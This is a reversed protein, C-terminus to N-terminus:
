VGYLSRLRAVQLVKFLLVCGYGMLLSAVLLMLQAPLAELANSTVAQSVVPSANGPVGEVLYTYTEWPLLRMDVYEYQVDAGAPVEGLLQYDEAGSVSRYIRFVSIDEGRALWRLAVGPRVVFWLVVFIVLAAGLAYLHMQPYAMQHRSRITELLRKEIDPSPASMPQHVVADRVQKWDQMDLDSSVPEKERAM